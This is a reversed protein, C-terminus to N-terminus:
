NGRSDRGGPRLTQPQLAWGLLGGAAASVPVVLAHWVLIHFAQFNACQLELLTLGALGGLAGTVLGASVPSVAWGRRLWWAGLFGAPVAYLVGTSLCGVGASVFHDTRYDRFLLGFVALLVVSVLALLTASTIRRRSGPIWEAVMRAAVLGGLVALAGFVAVRAPLDLAAFGGFGLRAAGLLAVAVGLVLVGGALVWDPPLPRVPALTPGIADVISKLLTPPLPHAARAVHELAADIEADKV